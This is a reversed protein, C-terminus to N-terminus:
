KKVQYAIYERTGCKANLAAQRAGEAIGATRATAAKRELEPRDLWADIMCLGFVFAIAGLWDLATRM